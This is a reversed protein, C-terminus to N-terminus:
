LLHSFLKINNKIFSDSINSKYYKFDIYDPLSEKFNKQKKSQTKKKNLREFEKLGKLIENKTNNIIEFDNKQLYSNCLHYGSFYNLDIAEKYSILKNRFKIKKLIFISRNTVATIIIGQMNTNYTPISLLSGIAKPGSDCCIFGRCKSILYYQLRKNFDLDTNIEKYLKEKFILKKSTSQTLRIVGYGKKLLYKISPLYSSINSGRLNSTNSYYNERHHFIFTKSIKFNSYNAKMHDKMKKEFIDNFDYLTDKGKKNKKYEAYVKAMPAVNVLQLNANLFTPDVQDSKCSVLRTHKMPLLLINLLTNDIIILNKFIEKIFSYDSHKPILIISKYGDLLNKKVMVDLNQNVTGIQSYNLEIFRYKSFYFLLIIPFYIIKLFNILTLFIFVLLDKM